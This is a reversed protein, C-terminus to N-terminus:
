IMTFESNYFKKVSTQTNAIVAYITGDHIIYIVSNFYCLLFNKFHFIIFVESM